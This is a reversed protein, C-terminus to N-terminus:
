AEKVEKEHVAPVARQFKFVHFLFWLSPLLVLTGVLASYFFDRLTTPPSAAQPVTLDPPLIYPLQAIGWTGLFAIVDMVVLIRALRYRRFFLAGATAIGILMTIAVAWWGHNLIGQWIPPAERSALSLALLGLLATVGGAILARFRFAKMLDKHNIREAEVTLFVAAITACVALAIIGVTIAFPTLWAHWLGVPTQGNPVRLQGSAVAAACAGFLFPTILSAAGFASGWVTKVTVVQSFNTRFAFAAGRLVFGILALTLPIFLANALTAAVIPFSVYLGVVLYILWVNNAEWVPGVAGRILKRAEQTKPGFFLINWIGGGFDAGGLTAFTIMSLWILVAVAYAYFDM